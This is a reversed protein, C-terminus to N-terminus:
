RIHPSLNQAAPKRGAPVFYLYYMRMRDCDGPMVPIARFAHPPGRFLESLFIHYRSPFRATGQTFDINYSWTSEVHKFKAKVAPMRIAEGRPLGRARNPLRRAVRMQM